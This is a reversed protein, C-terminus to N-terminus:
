RGRMQGSPTALRIFGSKEATSLLFTKTQWGAQQMKESLQPVSKRTSSKSNHLLKLVQAQSLQQRSAGKQYDCHAPKLELPSSLEGAVATLPQGVQQLSALMAQRFYSAQLIATLIDLATADDCLSIGIRATRRSDWPAALAPPRPPQYNLLYADNQHAQLLQRLEDPSRVLEEVPVIVLPLFGDAINPPRLLNEANSIDAMTPVTGRHVWHEAVM